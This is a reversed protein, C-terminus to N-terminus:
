LCGGGAGMRPAVYEGDEEPLGADTWAAMGGELNRVRLFRQKCAEYSKTDGDRSVLVTPIDARIRGKAEDPVNAPDCGPMPLAGPIRADEYGGVDDDDDSLKRVDIVQVRHGKQSVISLVERSEYPIRNEIDTRAMGASAVLASLAVIVVLFAVRQLAPAM